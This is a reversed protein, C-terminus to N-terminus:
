LEEVIEDDMHYLIGNKYVIEGYIEKEENQYILNFELNKYKKAMKDLWGAKINKSLFVYYLVESKEELIDKDWELLVSEDLSLIDTETSNDIFFEKLQNWSGYIELNNQYELSMRRYKM